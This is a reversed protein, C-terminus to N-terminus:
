PAKGASPGGDMYIITGSMYGSRSSAVFVIGAAIEEPRALRDFALKRPATTQQMRQREVVRFHETDVPGPSIGVVRINDRHSTAGLAETMLDLAAVGMGGCLYSASKTRSGTGLVNVIVGGGRKKMLPYYERCMNMYPFVKSDWGRRFQADDLEFLGGHPIEGANNVLIDIDPHERALEIIRDPRSLDCPALTVRVDFMALIEQRAIELGERGRAVLVLNCGEAAFEHATAAGIGKSGGTILATSGRLGLDM